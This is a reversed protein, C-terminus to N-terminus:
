QVNNQKIGYQKTREENNVMIVGFENNECSVLDATDLAPTQSSRDSTREEECDHTVSPDCGSSGTPVDAHPQRTM